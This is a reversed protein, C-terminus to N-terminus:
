PLSFSSSSSLCGDVFSSAAESFCLAEKGSCFISIVRKFQCRLPALSNDQKMSFNSAGQFLRPIGEWCRTVGLETSHASRKILPATPLECISIEWARGDALWLWTAGYNWNPPGRRSLLSLFIEEEKAMWDRSIIVAGIQALSTCREFCCCENNLSKM